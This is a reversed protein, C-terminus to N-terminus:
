PFSFLTCKFPCSVCKLASLIRLIGNKGEQHVGNALTNQLIEKFTENSSANEQYYQYALQTAKAPDTIETGDHRIRKALSSVAHNLVHLPVLKNSLISDTSNSPDQARISPIFIDALSLFTKWQAESLVEETSIPPSPVELPLLAATHGAVESM